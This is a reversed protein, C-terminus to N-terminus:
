QAFNEKTKVIEFEDSFSASGLNPGQNLSARLGQSVGGTREPFGHVFGGPGEPILPSRLIRISETM